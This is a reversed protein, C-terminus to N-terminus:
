RGIKVICIILKVPQISNVPIIKIIVTDVLQTASFSLQNVPTIEINNLGQSETGFDVNVTETLPTSTLAVPIKLTAFNEKEYVANPRIGLDIQPFELPNNDRDTQLFFRVFRGNENSYNRNDDEDCGILAFCLLIFIIKTAKM